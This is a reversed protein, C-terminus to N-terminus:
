GRSLDCDGMRVTRGFAEPVHAEVSVGSVCRIESFRFRAVIRPLSRCDRAPLFRVEADLTSSYFHPVDQHGQKNCCGGALDDHRRRLLPKYAIDILSWRLSFIHLMRCNVRPWMAPAVAPGLGCEQLQENGVRIWLLGDVLFKTMDHRTPTVSSSLIGNKRMNLQSHQCLKLRTTKARTKARTHQAPGWHPQIARKCHEDM